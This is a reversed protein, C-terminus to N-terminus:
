PCPALPVGPLFVSVMVAPTIPLADAHFVSRPRRRPEILDSSATHQSVTIFRFPWSYASFLTLVVSSGQLALFVQYYFQFIYDELSQWHACHFLIYVPPGLFPPLHLLVSRSFCHIRNSSSLQALVRAVDIADDDLALASFAHEHKSRLDEAIVSRLDRREVMEVLIDEGV